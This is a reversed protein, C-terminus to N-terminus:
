DLNGDEDFEYENSKITNIIAERSTLYEYEEQLLAAYNKLLSKLFDDDIDTTDPVGTLIKM